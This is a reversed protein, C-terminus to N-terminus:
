SGRNFRYNSFIRGRNVTIFTPRAVGGLVSARYAYKKLGLQNHGSSDGVIITKYTVSAQFTYPATITLTVTNLIQRKWFHEFDHLLLGPLGNHRPDNWFLRQRM